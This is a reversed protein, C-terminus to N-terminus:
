RRRDLNDDGVPAAALAEFPEPDDPASQPRRPITVSPPPTPGASVGFVFTRYAWFRFVSGAFLGSAKAVNFMFVDAHRNYGLVRDFTFLIVLEIALGALNFLFFLTYERRLSSKPLHRYTWHRNMFYASTAAVTTAAVNAKLAGFPLLLNFIAVNVVANVGGISGFKVVEAGVSRWRAPLRQVFRM